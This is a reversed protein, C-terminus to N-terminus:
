CKRGPATGVAMSRFLITLFNRFATCEVDGDGQNGFMWKLRQPTWGDVGPAAQLDLAQVMADLLVADGHVEKSSGNWRGLQFPNEKGEPHLLKLAHMTKNTMPAVGNTEKEVLISAKRTHSKGLFKLVRVTEKESLHEQREPRVNNHLLQESERILQNFGFGRVRQQAMEVADGDGLRKINRIIPEGGRKGKVLKWFVMIDFLKQDSPHEIYARSLKGLAKKIEDKIKRTMIIESAALASVQCFLPGYIDNVEFVVEGFKNANGIQVDVIEAETGNIEAGMQVDVIEAETGNIETGMQQLDVEVAYAEVGDTVHDNEAMESGIKARRKKIGDKAAKPKNKSGKPRGM